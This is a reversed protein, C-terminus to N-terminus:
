PTRGRAVDCLNKYARDGTPSVLALRAQQFGNQVSIGIWDRKIQAGKLDVFHVKRPFVGSRVIIRQDTLVYSPIFGILSAMGGVLAALTVFGGLPVIFKSVGYFKACDLHISGTCAALATDYVYYDNFFKYTGSGFFIVCILCLLVIPTRNGNAAMFIIESPRLEAIFVALDVKGNLHVIPEDRSVSIATM